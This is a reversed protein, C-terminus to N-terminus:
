HPFPSILCVYLQRRSITHGISIILLVNSLEIIYLSFYFVILAIERFVFKKKM